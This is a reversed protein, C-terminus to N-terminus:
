IYLNIFNFLIADELLYICTGHAYECNAICGLAVWGLVLQRRLGFCQFYVPAISFRVWFGRLVGGGRELAGLCSPVGFVSLWVGSGFM